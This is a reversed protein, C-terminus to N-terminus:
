QKKALMHFDGGIDALYMELDTYGAKNYVIYDGFLWKKKKHVHNNNKHKIDVPLKHKLEWTDPMGDLDSDFTKPKVDENQNYKYEKPYVFRKASGIGMDNGKTISSPGNNNKAWSLYMRDIKDNIFISGDEKFQVNGGVNNLIDRKVNRASLVKVPNSTAPIAKDKGRMILNPFSRKSWPEWVHLMEKADDQIIDTIEAREGFRDLFLNGDIYFNPKEGNKPYNAYMFKGYQFAILNNTKFSPSSATEQYVNNVFDSQANGAVRLIKKHGGGDFGYIFNNIIKFKARDGGAINPFRHSVGIFANKHISFDKVKNWTRKSGGSGAIGLLMGVNHNKQDIGYPNIINEHMLSRQVTINDVTMDYSGKTSNTIILGYGSWGSSIHDIIVNSVNTLRLSPQQDSKNNKLYWKWNFRTDFYRLIMNDQGYINFHKAGKSTLKGNNALHVGGKDNATQGALTFNNFKNEFTHSYKEGLNIGNNLDFRGGIAFVITRKGKQELAWKLSGKGKSRRNTVYVVKGFRGGTATAGAGEATPFAKLKKLVIVKKNSESSITKIDDFSATGRFKIGDISIFENDPEYEKLDRNLDRTFTHWRGDQMKSGLGLRIKFKRKSDIGNKKDKPDRSTYTLYRFGKSTQIVVYFAGWQNSKMKWQIMSNKDHWGLFDVGNKLATGTFRIVRGRQSDKINEIKAGSPSKDYIRWGKTNGDSANEYLTDSYSYTSILALSLISYKINKIM